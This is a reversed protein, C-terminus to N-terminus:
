GGGLLTETAAEFQRVTMGNIVTPSTFGCLTLDCFRLDSAGILLGADSFDVDLRLAAVNGGFVGSSASTPDILESTLPGSTGPFAHSYEADIGGLSANGGALQCLEQM